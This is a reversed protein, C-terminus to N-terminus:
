LKRNRLYKRYSRKGNEVMKQLRIDELEDITGLEDLQIRIHSQLSRQLDSVKEEGLGQLIYERLYRGLPYLRGGVKIMQLDNTIKVDMYKTGVDHTKLMKVIRSIGSYGIGKNKSMTLFPKVKDGHDEQNKPELVYGAVYGFVRQADVDGFLPIVDVFGISTNDKNWADIFPSKLCTIKKRIKCYGLEFPLERDAFILIHYHPRKTKREGYEGCSLYRYKYGTNKRLRKYFDSLDKRVLTGGPPLHTDNYTLTIYWVQHCHNREM